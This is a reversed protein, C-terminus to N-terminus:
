QTQKKMNSFHNKEFAATDLVSREVPSDFCEDHTLPPALGPQVLLYTSLTAQRFFRDRADM